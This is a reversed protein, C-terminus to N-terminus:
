TEHLGRRGLCPSVHEHDAQRVHQGRAVSADGQGDALACSAVEAGAPAGAAASSAASALDFAQNLNMAPDLASGAAAEGEALAEEATSGGGAETDGLGVGLGLAAEESRRKKEEPSVGTPVSRDPKRASGGDGEPSSESM